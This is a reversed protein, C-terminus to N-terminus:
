AQATNRLLIGTIEDCYLYGHDTLHLRPPDYRVLSDKMMHDLNPSLTKLLDVDYRTKIKDVCVGDSRMGLMITEAFLQERSLNEDGAVPAKWEELRSCYTNLNATNWWRRNDRFSHASPGLGLYPTHNWYNSNHRSRFGPRSYNSVEYHEFGASRLYEMTFRYMEAETKLPLPSVQKSEVMRWLQTGQEVILGYASIHKPNLALAQHLNAEWRSLTQRPLAFILDVGINEYGVRYASEVCEIAESASHIRTLFKLEDEHFSQIGISLRNIGLSRFSRLKEETVTGPNTELTIEADPHLTFLSYIRSLIREIDKPSLISPTGGGFYITEIKEEGTFGASLVIERDLATLFRTTHELSEISYFDCYICKHECFPIHLYIGAM